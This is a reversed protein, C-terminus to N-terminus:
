FICANGGHSPGEHPHEPAFGLVAPNENSSRDVTQMFNQEMLDPYKAPNM